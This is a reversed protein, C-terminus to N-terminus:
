VLRHAPFILCLHLERLGTRQVLLGVLTQVFPDFSGTRPGILRRLLILRLRQSQAAIRYNPSNRLTGPLTGARRSEPSRSSHTRVRCPAPVKSTSSPRTARSHSPLIATSPSRASRTTANFIAWDGGYLIIALAVSGFLIRELWRRIIPPIM